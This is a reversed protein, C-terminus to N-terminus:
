FATAMTWAGTTRRARTLDETVPRCSCGASPFAAPQDAALGTGSMWIGGGNDNPTTCYAGTQQLTTANYALVWGHWPSTDVHSAFGIYVVGNLLLLGPRQNERGPLPMFRLTGGASGGGTGPVSADINVPGGLKEAGTKVDLAHLRQIETGGEMTKSVVYLTGSAPDIVPTGTIGIEPNIDGNGQATTAGSAAGHAATLM